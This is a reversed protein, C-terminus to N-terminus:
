VTASFPTAETGTSSTFGRVQFVNTALDIIEIFEGKTVSGTTTRNLTITDSTGAVAFFGKVTVPDDSMTFVYGQMADSVNAVKIIHSNSTALLTVVFRFMAGSGTAAPLTVISGAATDLAVISGSNISTLTKTAGAAVVGAPVADIHRITGDINLQLRDTDSDVAFGSANASYPTAGASRRAVRSNAM